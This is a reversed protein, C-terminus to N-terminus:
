ESPRTTAEPVRNPQVSVWFNRFVKMVSAYNVPAVEIPGAIPSNNLIYITLSMFCFPEMLAM